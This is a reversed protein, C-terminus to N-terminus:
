ETSNSNQNYTKQTAPEMKNEGEVKQDNQIQQNISSDPSIKNNSEECKQSVQQSTLSTNTNQKRVVSVSKVLINKNSLSENNQQINNNQNTQGEKVQNIQQANQAQNKKLGVLEVLNELFQLDPCAVAQQQNQQQQSIQTLNQAAQKSSDKQQDNSQNNNNNNGESQNSLYNPSIIKSATKVQIIQKINEIQNSSAGLSKLKEINNLSNQLTNNNSELQTDLKQSSSLGTVSTQQAQKFQQSAIVNELIASVAKTSDIRMLQAKLAQQTNNSQSSSNLKQDEMKSLNESYYKAFENQFKLFKYNEKVETNSLNNSNVSDKSLESNNTISQNVSALTQNNLLNTIANHVEQVNKSFNSNSNNNTLKGAQNLSNQNQLQNASLKRVKFINSSNNNNSTNKGLIEQNSENMQLYKLSDQQSQSDNQNNNNNEQVSDQNQQNAVIQKVLNEIKETNLVSLPTQNESSSRDQKAPNKIEGQESLFRKGLLNGATATDEKKIVNIKRFGMAESKNTESQAVQQSQQQQKQNSFEKETAEIKTINQEQENKIGLSPTSDLKIINIQPFNKNQLEENVAKETNQLNDKDTESSLTKDAFIDRRSNFPHNFQHHAFSLQNSHQYNKYLPISNLNSNQNFKSMTFTNTYKDNLFPRSNSAYNMNSFPFDFHKFNSSPDEFRMAMSNINMISNDNQFNNSNFNKEGFINQKFAYGKKQSPNIPSKLLSKNILNSNTNNLQQNFLPNQINANSTTNFINNLSNFNYSQNNHFQYSDQNFLNFNSFNHKYQQPSTNKILNQSQENFQNQNNQQITQDKKENQQNNENQNNNSYEEDFEEEDEEHEEDDENDDDFEEEEEEEGYVKNNNYHNSLQQQDQLNVLQQQTKENQKTQINETTDQPNNQNQQENNNQNTQQKQNSQGQEEQNIIGSSNQKVFKQLKPEKENDDKQKQTQNLQFSPPRINNKSQNLQQQQKQHSENNENLSNLKTNDIQYEIEDSQNHNGKSKMKQFMEIDKYPNPKILSIIQEDPNQNVTSSQKQRKIKEAQKDQIKSKKKDRNAPPSKIQHNANQNDLSNQAQQLQMQNQRNQQQNLILSISNNDNNENELHHDQINRIHNSEHNMINSYSNFGDNTNTNQINLTNNNNKNTNKNTLDNSMNNNNLNNSMDNNFDIYGDYCNTQSIQKQFNQSELNGLGIMNIMNNGMNNLNETAILNNSRVSNQKIMSNDLNISSNHLHHQEQLDNQNYNDVDEQSRYRNNMQMKYQNSYFDNLQNVNAFENIDFNSILQPDKCEDMLNQQYENYNLENNGGYNSYQNNLNQNEQHMKQHNQYYQNSNVQKQKKENSKRNSQQQNQPKQRQDHGDEKNNKNNKKKQNGNQNENEALGFKNNQDEGEYQNKNQKVLNQQNEQKKDDLDSQKEDKQTNTVKEQQEQDEEIAEEDEEFDEEDDEDDEEEEEEDENVVYDEDDDENFLNEYYNFFRFDSDQSFQQLFHYNDEHDVGIRSPSLPIHLRPSSITNQLHSEWESVQLISPAPQPPQDKTIEYLLNVVQDKPYNFGSYIDNIMLQESLKPKEQGKFEILWSESDPYLYIGFICNSNQMGNSQQKQLWKRHLYELLYSLCQNTGIKVELRPFNQLYLQIQHTQVNLPNLRVFIKQEGQIPNRFDGALLNNQNNGKVGLSENSCFSQQLGFPQPLASQKKERRKSTTRSSSSISASAAKNESFNVINDKQNQRDGIQKGEYNGNAVSSTPTAAASKRQRLNISETPNEKESSNQMSSSEKNNQKNGVMLQKQLQELYVILNSVTHFFDFRENLKDDIFEIKQYESVNQMSKDQWIQKSFSDYLKVKLQKFCEDALEDLDIDEYSETDQLSEDIKSLVIDYLDALNQIKNHEDIISIIINDYLESYSSEQIKQEDGQNHSQSERGDLYGSQSTDEEMQM